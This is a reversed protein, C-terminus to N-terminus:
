RLGCVPDVVVGAPTVGMAEAASASGSASNSARRSAAPGTLMLSTEVGTDFGLPWDAFTDPSIGPTPAGPSIMTM